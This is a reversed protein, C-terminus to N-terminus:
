RRRKQPRLATAVAEAARMVPGAIPGIVPIAAASQVAQSKMQPYPRSDGCIPCVFNPVDGKRMTSILDRNCPEIRDDDERQLSPHRCILFERTIPDDKPAAAAVTSQPQERPPADEDQEAVCVPCAWKGNIQQLDAGCATCSTLLVCSRKYGPPDVTPAPAIAEVEQVDPKEDITGCRDCQPTNRQEGCVACVLASGIISRHYTSTTM